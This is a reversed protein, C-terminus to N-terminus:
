LGVPQADKFTTKGHASGIGTNSSVSGRFLPLPFEVSGQELGVDLSSCNQRQYVNSGLDHCNYPDFLVLYVDTRLPSWKPLRRNITHGKLKESLFSKERM